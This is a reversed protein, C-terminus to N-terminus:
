VKVEYDIENIESSEIFAEESTLYEYEERLQAFLDSALDRFFETAEKEWDEAGMQEDILADWADETLRVFVGLPHTRADWDSLDVGRIYSGRSSSVPSVDLKLDSAHLYLAPYKEDFGKLSMFKSFQMHGEFAAGGGQLYFGEFWIGSVQLDYKSACEERFNDYIHEWWDYDLGYELYKEHQRAFEDPHQEKLQVINM